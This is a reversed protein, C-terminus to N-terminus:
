QGSFFSLSIIKNILHFLTMRVKNTSPTPYYPANSTLDNSYDNSTSAIAQADCSDAIFLLLYM